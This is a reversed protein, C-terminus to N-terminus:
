GPRITSIGHRTFRRRFCSRWHTWDPMAVAVERCAFSDRSCVARDTRRSESHIRRGPSLLFSILAFQVIHFSRFDGCDADPYEQGEGDIGVGAIELVDGNIPREVVPGADLGHQNIRHVGRTGDIVGRHVDGVVGVVQIQADRQMHRPIGERRAFVDEDVGIIIHGRAKGEASDAGFHEDM